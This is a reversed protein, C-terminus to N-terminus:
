LQKSGKSCETWVRMTGPAYEPSDLTNPNIRKGNARSGKSEFVADVARQFQLQHKAFSLLEIDVRDLDMYLLREFHPRLAAICVELVDKSCSKTRSQSILASGDLRHIDVRLCFEDKVEVVYQKREPTTDELREPPADGGAAVDEEEDDRFFSFRKEGPSQDEEDNGSALGFGDGSDEVDSQMGMEAEAEAEAGVETEAEAEPQTVDIDMSRASAQPTAAPSSRQTPAPSASRSRRNSPSPTLGARAPRRQGRRFDVRIPTTLAHAGGPLVTMHNAYATVVTAPGGSWNRYRGTGGRQITREDHQMPVDVPDGIPTEFWPDMDGIRLSGAAALDGTSGRRARRHQRCNIDREPSPRKNQRASRREVPRGAHDSGGDEMRCIARMRTSRIILRLGRVAAAAGAGAAGAGRALM